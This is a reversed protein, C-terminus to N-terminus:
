RPDFGAKALSHRISELAAQANYTEADNVSLKRIDTFGIRKLVQALATAQDEEIEFKIEM